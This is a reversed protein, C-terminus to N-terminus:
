LSLPMVDQVDMLVSIVLILYIIMIADTWCHKLFMLLLLILLLNPYHINKYLM